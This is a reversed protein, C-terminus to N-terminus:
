LVIWHTNEYQVEPIPQAQLEALQLMEMVTESAEVLSVARQGDVDNIDECDIM